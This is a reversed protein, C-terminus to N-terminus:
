ELQKVCVILKPSNVDIEEYNAQSSDGPGSAPAPSNRSLVLLPGAYCTKLLNQPRSRRYIHWQTLGRPWIFLM